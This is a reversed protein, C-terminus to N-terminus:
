GNAWIAYIGFLCGGFAIIALGLNSQWNGYGM